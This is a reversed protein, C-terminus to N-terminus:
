IVWVTVTQDQYVIYRSASATALLLSPYLNGYAYYDSPFANNATLYRPNYERLLTLPITDVTSAHMRSWDAEAQVGDLVFASDSEVTLQSLPVPRIQLKNPEVFGYMLLEPSQFATTAGGIPLLPKGALSSMRAGLLGDNFVWTGPGALRGYMGLNYESLSMPRGAALDYGVIAQSTALAFVVAGGALAFKLRRSSFGHLIRLLGAVVFLSVFPICYFGTYQRLFLTPVFAVLSVVMFPEAFGKARKRTTTLVGLFMLPTLLGASRALSVGLNLLQIELTDGTAVVGVRYSSLVGTLLLMSTASIVVGVVAVWSANRLFAPKLFTRPFTLRLTRVVVILILTAFAALAVLIMLITLRHFSMMVLLVIGAVFVTRYEHSRVSRIISWLFVPVLATFAIRTPMQWVLSEVFEPTTSFLLAMLIAFVVSNSFERALVYGGLGGIIAVILDVIVIAGEVEIGGVSAVGGVLFIAGAPQSLPYLGLYSLPSLVWLARGNGLLSTTMGHWLFSDIGVEHSFRPYRLALNLVCVAAM